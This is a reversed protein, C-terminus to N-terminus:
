KWTGRAKNEVLIYKGKECKGLSDTGNVTFRKNTSDWGIQVTVNGTDVGLATANTTVTGTEALNKVARLMVENVKVEVDQCYRRNLFPRYFSLAIASMIALIALVIMLEILTFGKKGIWKM